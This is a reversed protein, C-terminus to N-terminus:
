PNITETNETVALTSTVFSSSKEYRVIDRLDNIFTGLYGNKLVDIERKKENETHEFELNTVARAINDTAVTFEDKDDLQTFGAQSRLTYRTTNPFKHITGDIKFNADVILNPPLIQRNQEDRIEFTEYHRIQSMTAEDGYKSLAYDYVQYDQLPWQHNINTIGAVLVVVYDLRADGYLAEAVTDPRDGEGIIFKDFVSAANRIYDALKTRRFLNKVVIYDASSNKHSLPSQYAINPLENFYAM